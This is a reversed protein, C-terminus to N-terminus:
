SLISHQIINRTLQDVIDMTIGSPLQGGSIESFQKIRSLTDINPNKIPNNAASQQMMAREILDAQLQQAQTEQRLRYEERMLDLQQQQKRQNEINGLLGAALGTGFSQFGKSAM